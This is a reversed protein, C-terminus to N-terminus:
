LPIWSPSCCCEMKQPRDGRPSYVVLPEIYTDDFRRKVKEAAVARKLVGVTYEGVPGWTNVCLVLQFDRIRRMAQFVRFRWDFWLAEKAIEAPSLRCVLVSHTWPPGVGQFDYDRFIAIIETFVPSTITSLAYAFPGTATDLSGNRYLASSVAGPSAVELTRLIRNRSLDFDRISSAGTFGDTLMQFGNLSHEKGRPDTPYLRLTELTEACAGLLLQMGVVDFLHMYRFRIGGFLTIMEELVDVRTFCTVTLRGRLPPVFPPVLTPDHAPEPESRRYNEDYLIKLDELHKFLGIFYIIQRRSGIPERLALSHVTPLFCGFYRQIRPMFSTIDLYDIGLEQVNTFSTFHRLTCWSLRKPSFIPPNIFRAGFIHLKKVLPLLGAKHVNRLPKPWKPGKYKEWLVRDWFYARTILTHHLHHVTVIYWSYCTLSCALLSSKDYILHAIIMELIEVPLRPSPRITSTEPPGSRSFIRQIGALTRYWVRKALLETATVTIATLYLLSFCTAHSGSLSSTPTKTPPM